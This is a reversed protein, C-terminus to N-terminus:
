GQAYLCINLEPIRRLGTDRMRAAHSLKRNRRREVARHCSSHWERKSAGSRARTSPPAKKAIADGDTVSGTAYRQTLREIGPNRAGSFCLLDPNQSSRALAEAIAHERAGSGVILVTDRM